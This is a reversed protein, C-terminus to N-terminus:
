SKEFLFQIYTDQFGEGAAGAEYLYRDRLNILIVKFDSLKQTDVIQTSYIHKLQLLHETRNFCTHLCRETEKTLKTEEPFLTITTMYYQVAKKYDREVGMGNEYLLGLGLFGLWDNQKAAKGLLSHAKKYDKKDIYKIGLYSQAQAYGQLAARELWKIGQSHDTASGNKKSYLNIGLRFQAVAYGQDAAKRLWEIAKQPSQETAEEEEYLRGLWYQAFPTGQQAAQFFLAQAIAIDKRVLQGYKYFLGLLTQAQLNNHAVRKELETLFEKHLIYQEPDHMHFILLVALEKDTLRSLDSQNAIVTKLVESTLYWDPMNAEIIWEQLAERAAKNDCIKVEDCLTQFSVETLPIHTHMLESFFSPSRSLSKNGVKEREMAQITIGALGLLMIGARIVRSVRYNKAQLAIMKM